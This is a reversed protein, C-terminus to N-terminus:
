TAALPPAAVTSGAAPRTAAACWGTPCASAADTAANTEANTAADTAADPIQLQNQQKITENDDLEIGFVSVIM